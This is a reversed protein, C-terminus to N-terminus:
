LTQVYVVRVLSITHEYILDSGQRKFVPHPKENVILVVDGPTAGPMQNSEGRLVLRYTRLVM